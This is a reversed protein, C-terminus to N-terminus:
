CNKQQKSVMCFHTKESHTAKNHNCKFTKKKTICVLRAEAQNLKATLIEKEEMALVYKDNLDAILQEMQMIDTNLQELMAIQSELERELEEVRDKKPKIDKYVDCFNLVANVFKLLGYGAKSINQMAEPSTKAEKLHKRCKTVQKQTILECNMEMLSKLFGGESM